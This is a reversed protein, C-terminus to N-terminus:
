LIKRYMTKSILKTKKYRYMFSESHGTFIFGQPALRMMLQDLIQHQSASDFYILVNRCFIVDFIWDITLPKILNCQFFEIMQRFEPKVKCFGENEGTGKLFWKNLELNKINSLSDIEYVGAKAKNLVNTDIDSAYIKYNWQPKDAFYESLTFAMSYPEEGTSCGASWIKITKDPKRKSMIEPLAVSKLLEFHHNERFFSTLNTTIANVFERQLADNNQELAAIYQDFNEYPSVRIIRVLRTYVMDMKTSDIEIGSAKKALSRISEFNERSYGFEYSKM